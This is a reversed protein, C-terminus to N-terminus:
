GDRSSLGINFSNTPFPLFSQSHSGLLFPSSASPPALFSQTSDRFSHSNHARTDSRDLDDSWHDSHYLISDTGEYGTSTGPRQHIPLSPQDEEKVLDLSHLAPNDRKGRSQGAKNAAAMSAHLSTLERMM